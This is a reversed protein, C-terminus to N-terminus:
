SGKKKSKAKSKARKASTKAPKPEKVWVQAGGYTHSYSLGLAIAEQRNDGFGGAYVYMYDKLQSIKTIHDLRKAQDELLSELEALQARLWEISEENKSEVKSKLCKWM